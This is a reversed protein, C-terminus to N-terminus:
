PLQCSAQIMIFDLIAIIVTIGTRGMTTEFVVQLCIQIFGANTKAGFLNKQRELNLRAPWRDKSVHLAHKAATYTASNPFGVLGTVSSTVAIHGQINKKLFFNLAIRSLNVVAFVDLEFLERDVKLQITNWEARQSRGANNVLIDLTKFYDIVKDFCKKHNDIELMDMPLVLVDNAHLYGRSAEVCEQKVKFLDSQKRSSLCLRVGHKALVIALDRGIGSSAGTIWVVKGRLTDIPKGLKSLLYLELDSDLYYFVLFHIIYYVIVCLGVLSFLFM